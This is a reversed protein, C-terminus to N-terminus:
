ILPLNDHYVLLLAELQASALLDIAFTITGVSSTLLEAM